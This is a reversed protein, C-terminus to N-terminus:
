KRNNLHYYIKVPSTNMNIFKVQHNLQYKRQKEILVVDYNRMELKIM